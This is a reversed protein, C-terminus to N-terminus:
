ALCLIQGGAVAGYKETEPQTSDKSIYLPTTTTHTPRELTGPIACHGLAVKETQLLLVTCFVPTTDLQQTWSQYLHVHVAFLLAPLSLRSHPNRISCQSRIQENDRKGCM